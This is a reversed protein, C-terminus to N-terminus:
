IKFKQIAAQLEDALKSLSSASSAIEEMSALQEEAVSAISATGDAVEKSLHSMQEVSSAAQDTCASIQESSASVEETQVTVKRVADVIRKFSDGAEHIVSVGSAVEKTEKDMGEMILATDQQIQGILAVIREASQHSQEALKKVEGAVVAFGRGQEGARAAEISANLALLNTQAAIATIVEIIQEVEQSRENLRRALQASSAVSENIVNMQRVAGQIAENGQEAEKASDISAESVIAVSQAIHQFGSAMEEMGRASEEGVQAATTANGAMEQITEAVQHTAQTVQETGVLLQEASSAVLESSINIQRILNQLSHKMMQFSAALEGTEDRNKVHIDEVTLDGAAIRKALGTLTVIPRSLARSFFYGIAISLVITAASIGLVFRTIFDVRDSVDQKAADMAQQEESAVNNALVRINRGLENVEKKNVQIAEDLQNKQVLDVVKNVNTRFQQNLSKITAVNKKQEDKQILQEMSEITSALKAASSELTEINVKERNLLYGRIAANQLAVLGETDKAYFLIASQRDLLDTYADKVKFFQLYSVGCVIGFLLSVVLFGGILKRSITLRM